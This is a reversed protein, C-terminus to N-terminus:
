MKRGPSKVLLSCDLQQAGEFRRYCLLPCARLFEWRRDICLYASKKLLYGPFYKLIRLCKTHFIIGFSQRPEISKMNYIWNLIIAKSLVALTSYNCNERGVNQRNLRQKIVCNRHLCVCKCQSSIKSKMSVLCCGIVFVLFDVASCSHLQYFSSGQPELCM